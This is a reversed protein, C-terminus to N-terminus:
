HSEDQGGMATDILDASDEAADQFGSGSNAMALLEDVTPPRLTLSASKAQLIGASLKTAPISEGALQGHNDSKDTRATTLWEAPISSRRVEAPNVFPWELLFVDGFGLVLARVGRDNPGLKESIVVPDVVLPHERVPAERKNSHYAVRDVTRTGIIETALTNVTEGPNLRVVIQTGIMSTWSAATHEGYLNKIQAIDQAGIVVRIGKSRGIELLPSFDTLEGLQPFEDLFFWLRRSRSDCFDPSNIRSSMLTLAAKLYSRALDSYRGSGQLVVVRRKSKDNNLWKSFSFRRCPEAHGWAAALQAVVSLNAGLNILVSQTTKGPSEFLHRAEPVFQKVIDLLDEQSSCALEYLSAWSWIGPQEHQLKVIVATLVQRASQHWLPDHGEPILRAALEQADQRNQCDQAIDWTASRADWPAMLIIRGPLWSTFDGKNDFIVLRDGRAMAAQMWPIFIQTKGGGTSGWILSHRSEQDLSLQWRFRPHIKLGEGLKKASASARSILVRLGAKGKFLRRGAIHRESPQSKALQYFMFLGSAVSMWFSCQFRLTLVLPSIDQSLQQLYAAYALGRREMISPFYEHVQMAIWGNLHSGYDGILFPYPIQWALWSLAVFTVVAAIVGVIAGLGIDGPLRNEVAM